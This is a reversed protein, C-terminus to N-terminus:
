QMFTIAHDQEQQNHRAIIEGLTIMNREELAQVIQEYNKWHENLDTKRQQISQYQVRYVSPILDEILEQLLQNGSIPYGYRIFDITEQFYHAYDNKEAHKKMSQLLKKLPALQNDTWRTAVEQGLLTYLTSMVNYLDKIEADNIKKVVAGRRPLINILRQRQLILLAERVPGRSVNLEEAIKEERIRSGPAFDARIIKDALWKGVQVSLNDHQPLSM